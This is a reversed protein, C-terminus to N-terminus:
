DNRGLYEFTDFELLSEDKNDYCATFSSYIISALTFLFMACSRSYVSDINYKNYQDVLQFYFSQVKRLLLM